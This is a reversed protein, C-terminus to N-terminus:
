CAPQWRAIGKTSPRLAFFFESSGVNISLQMHCIESILTQPLLHRTDNSHRSFCIDIVSSAKAPPVM